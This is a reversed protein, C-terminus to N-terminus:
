LTLLGCGFVTFVLALRLMERLQIIVSLDGHLSRTLEVEPNLANQQQLQLQRTVCAFVSTWNTLNHFQTWVLWFPDRYVRQAQFANTLYHDRLNKGMGTGSDCLMFAVSGVDAGGAEPSIFKRM